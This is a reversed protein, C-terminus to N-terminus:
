PDFAHSEHIQQWIDDPLSSAFLSGATEIMAVLMAKLIPSKTEGIKALLPRIMNRGSKFDTISVNIFFGYLKSINVCENMSTPKLVKQQFEICIHRLVINQLSSEACSVFQAYIVPIPRCTTSISIIEDAIQDYDSVLDLLADLDRYITQMTLKMLLEHAEAPFPHPEFQNEEESM